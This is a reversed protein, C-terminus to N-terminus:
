QVTGCSEPNTPPPGASSERTLGKRIEVKKKSPINPQQPRLFGAEPLSGRTRQSPFLGTERGAEEFAVQISCKCSGDSERAVAEVLGVLM